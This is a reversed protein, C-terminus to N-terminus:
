TVHVIVPVLGLPLYEDYKIRLAREKVPVIQAPFAGMQSGVSGGTLLSAGPAGSVIASDATDLLQGYGPQGFATSTFLAAGASLWASNYRPPLKSGALSASYRVCGDETDAAVTFGHLISDTAHLRHAFMRGLVTVRNLHVTAQAVAYAAPAISLPYADELLLRNLWARAAGSRRLLHDAQPSFVVGAWRNPRYIDQDLLRNLARALTERAARPPEQSGLLLRRIPQPIDNSVSRWIFASLPNPQARPREATARGPSLQDYLLLPDFVDAASLAADASTRFGQLTSDTIVVREALGGGRTRIPGLVSRDIQLSRM